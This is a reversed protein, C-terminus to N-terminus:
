ETTRVEDGANVLLAGNLIIRDDPALRPALIERWGGSALGAEVGVRVAKGDVVKFISENGGRLAVAAAPLAQGTRRAFVIHSEVIMGSALRDTKPMVARVEFTRTLPSVSPSKYSVVYTGEATELETRGVVVKGYNAAHLSVCLEHVSPDELEFVKMGPSVYDGANKYKKTVVADFPARVDSDALNKRAVALATEAKTQVACAADLNAKAGRAAVEAKEFADKTVAKADLLRTMRTLDLTAKAETVEAQVRKARAMALDDEAAQVANALNEHDVRFLRAGRKVAMGEDATMEDITGPMRASVSATNKARITGQVRLADAFAVGNTVSGVCVLPRTDVTEAPKETCGVLVVASLALMYLHNRV